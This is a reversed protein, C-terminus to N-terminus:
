GELALFVVPEELALIIVPREFRLDAEEPVLVVVPAELGQDLVLVLVPENTVLVLVKEELVLVPVFAPAELGVFLHKNLYLYLSHQKSALAM